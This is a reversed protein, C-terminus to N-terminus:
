RVEIAGTGAAKDKNPNEVFLTRLGAAATAPVQLALHVIGLGLPERNTIVIDAASPGSLTYTFSPDLGSVSFVCLDATAVGSAPRFITVPSGGLMCSSTAAVYIGIAAVNLSVNGAAGSGGNTSLEVVVIDKGTASPAGPTLPIVDSGSGAALVVFTVINSPTGDPNQLSVTLNGAISLDGASISTTCQTTSACFTSRAAGAVVIMSGPGPSSAVFNAGSIRLTFGGASGAYASTPALNSIAPAGSITVTATGSQSTDEASTASVSILDPAPAASPAVYLGTSDIRGCSGAAGCGAGAITWTVQQNDTGSISASFRQQGNNALSANGPLVSVVIHPLITVSASASQTTDAQSIATVIVPNPSPVGAPSFYDISGGNSASIQRCPNSGTVCIEGTSANGGAIGNVQWAVNQNATNNVLVAFTQRHGVARTASAPTLVVNIATTFTVIASATLGPNANSRARITVSSFAPLNHPATYTTNNPDTQSNVITGLTASGGVIGNVDWTVSADQLGTVVARFAQTSGLPATAATPSVSISVVSVITVSLTTAKAPDALPAATIQVTAPSPAFAPATYLGDASITGCTAGTCGLGSVSWSIARSPNSNAVPVLTATYSSTSASNVSTFGTVTLTFSSTVTIAAAGSKSPDAVSVARVLVGPPATLVQPATYTGASDVAGCTIGACGNGSVIWNVQRNPNGASNVVAAFPRAAGLEVPMTQPSVNVTIDSTVTVAASATKSSDEVSTAQVIIQASAPLNVPSTYVGNTSITGVAANGGSIGNVQWSVASNTANSVAATFDQATGLLLSASAPTLSVTINSPPPQPSAPGAVGGCGLLSVAFFITTWWRLFISTVCRRGRYATGEDM